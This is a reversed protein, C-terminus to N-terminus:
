PQGGIEGIAQSIRAAFILQVRPEAEELAPELYPQAQFGRKKIARGVVFALREDGLRRRAWVKLNDVNPFWGAKRGFEIVQAYPLASGVEGLLKAGEQRVAQVISVRLAGRFVPAKIKALSQILIAADQMAQLLALGLRNPLQDFFKKNEDKGTISVRIM